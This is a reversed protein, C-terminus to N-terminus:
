DSVEMPIHYVEYRRWAEDLSPWSSVLKSGVINSEYVCWFGFRKMIHPKLPNMEEPGRVM